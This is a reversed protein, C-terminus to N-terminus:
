RGGPGKQVFTRGTLPAVAVQNSLSRQPHARNASSRYSPSPSSSRMSGPENPSSAERSRFLSPCLPDAQICSTRTTQVYSSPQFGDHHLPPPCCWERGRPSGPWLWSQRTLRNDLSPARNAVVNGASRREKEEEELSTTFLLYLYHDSSDSSTRAQPEELGVRRNLQREGENRAGPEGRRVLFACTWEATM